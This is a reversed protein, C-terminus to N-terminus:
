QCQQEDDHCRGNTGGQTCWLTMGGPHGQKLNVESAQADAPVAQQKANAPQAQVQGGDGERVKRSEDFYQLASVAGVEADYRCRVIDFLKSTHLARM